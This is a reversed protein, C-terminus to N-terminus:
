KQPLERGFACDLGREALHPMLINCILAGMSNRRVQPARVGLALLETEEGSQRFRLALSRNLKRGCLPGSNRRM